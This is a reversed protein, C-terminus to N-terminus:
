VFLSIQYIIDMIALLLNIKNISQYIYNIKICGYYIQKIKHNILIIAYALLCSIIQHFKILKIKKFYLFFIISQWNKYPWCTTNWEKFM